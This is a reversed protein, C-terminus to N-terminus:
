PALHRLPGADAPFGRTSLVQSGANHDGNFPTVTDPLGAKKADAPSNFWMGLHYTHIPNFAPNQPADANPADDHVVPAPAVNPAVAFTEVSFRGVFRAFGFGERNTEFDGQYWSLGFPADPVQIVFFDFETNPPLGWAVVDM